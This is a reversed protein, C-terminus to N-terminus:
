YTYNANPNTSGPSIGGSNGNIAGANTANVVLCANNAAISWNQFINGSCTNRAIFNGGSSAQIGIVNRTCNNAEIRNDTGTIRIGAAGSQSRCTNGTVLSDSSVTIGSTLNSSTICNVITCGTSTIIGNGISSTAICNSITCNTSASIGNDLNSTATCDTITTDGETSIGDGINSIVTCNTITGRGASRIGEGTNNNAICHSVTAGAFASIGAVLNSRATCHFVTFGAGVQIGINGNGSSHVSEVAGNASTSSGLNVGMAAWNRVSGNRLTINRLADTTTRIGDSSGPTGILDFGMLDITVGSAAIEIGAKGSEGTINGALYYSGPQTIRFLATANGPTNTANIPIRPEPGPTSSIPGPPPTLPGANATSALFAGAALGGLGALMARRQTHGAPVEAGSGIPQDQM